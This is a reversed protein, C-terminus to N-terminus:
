PNSLPAILSKHYSNMQKKLKIIHRNRKNALNNEPNPQPYKEDIAM